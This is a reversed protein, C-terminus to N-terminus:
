PYNASNGSPIEEPHIRAYALADLIDQERLGDDEFRALLKEISREDSHLECITQVRVSTGVVVPQHKSEEIKEINLAFSVIEKWLQRCGENDVPEPWNRTTEKLGSLEVDIDRPQQGQETERYYELVTQLFEVIVQLVEANECALECLSQCLAAALRDFRGSKSLNTGDITALKKRHWTLWRVYLRATHVPKVILDDINILDGLEFAREYRQRNEASDLLFEAFENEKRSIEYNRHLDGKKSFDAVVGMFAYKSGKMRSLQLGIDQQESETESLVYQLALLGTAVGETDFHPEHFGEKLLQRSQNLLLRASAYDGNAVSRVAFERELRIMLATRLGNLRQDHPFTKSDEDDTEETATQDRSGWHSWWDSDPSDQESSDVNEIRNSEYQTWQQWWVSDAGESSDWETGTAYQWAKNLHDNAKDTDGQQHYAIGSALLAMGVDLQHLESNEGDNPRNREQLQRRAVAGGQEYSGTALMSLALVNHLCNSVRVAAVDPSNQLTREWQRWPDSLQYALFEAQGQPAGDSQGRNSSPALTELMLLQAMPALAERVQDEWSSGPAANMRYEVLNFVNELQDFETSWTHPM